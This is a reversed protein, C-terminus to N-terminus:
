GVEVLADTLTEGSRSKGPATEIPDALTVEVELTRIRKKLLLVEFACIGDLIFKYIVM